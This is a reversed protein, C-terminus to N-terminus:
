LQATQPGSGPLKVVLPVNTARFEHRLHVRGSDASAPGADLDELMRQREDNDLDFQRHFRQDSM